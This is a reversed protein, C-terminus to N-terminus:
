NGTFLELIISLFVLWSMTRGRPITVLVAPDLWVPVATDM